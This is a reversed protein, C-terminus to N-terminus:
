YFSTRISQSTNIFHHAFLSLRTLLIIHSYVSVHSYDRTPKRTFRENNSDPKLGAELPNVFKSSDIDFQVASSTPHDRSRNGTTDSPIKETAVSPVM